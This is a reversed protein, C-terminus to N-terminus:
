PIWLRPLVKLPRVIPGIVRFLSQIKFLTPRRLLEGQPHLERTKLDNHLHNAFITGGPRFKATVIIQSPELGAISRATSYAQMRRNIQCMRRKDPTWDCKGRSEGDRGGQRSAGSMYDHFVLRLINSCVHIDNQQCSSESFSTNRSGRSCLLEM